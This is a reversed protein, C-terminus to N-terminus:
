PRSRPAVASAIDVVVASYFYLNYANANSDVQLRQMEIM